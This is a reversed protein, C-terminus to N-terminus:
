RDYNKQWIDIIEQYAQRLAPDSSQKAKRSMGIKVLFASLLYKLRGHHRQYLMARSRWLNVLSRVEAQKTSGGGYHVIEAAPVAYIEWKAERIRWCWDVEECYMHFAEDFGQTSQFVEARLLMTAGLPHDIAFPKGDSRYQSRSYRGNLRTEYLRAPLPFLDFLLQSIGPFFFASHQFRGSGYVLRAGAMAAEPREELCNVLHTLAGPQVVTDPNLLFYYRPDFAAAARMGQNNAAGFGPNNENAILEVHPFLDALIDVTGDTSANDVVWVKVTFGSRAIESNVSRLCKDLYDRVNWSVIVVAVDLM